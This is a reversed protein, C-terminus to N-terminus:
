DSKDPKVKIQTKLKAITEEDKIAQETRGEQKAIREFLRVLRQLVAKDEETNLLKNQTQKHMEKSRKHQETIEQIQKNLRAIQDLKPLIGKVGRIGSLELSTNIFENREVPDATTQAVKMLETSIAMRQTPMAEMPIPILKFRAQRLYNVEEKTLKLTSLNGEGDSMSYFTDPQIEALLLETISQGVNMSYQNVHKMSLLVREMASSQLQKVTSFIEIGAEPSGQLLSNIGTVYEIGNKMMDLMYPYFQGLQQVEDREPVLVTNEWQKPNYFRVKRPDNVNEWSPIDDKDIGGKPSKWGANNTLIGNLLLMAILKDYADQMGKGSHIVGYCMYPKGAWENFSWNLPFVTMPEMLVQVIYDGLILTRRVYLDPWTDIAGSLLTQQDPEMNEAFLRMILGNENKVLYMNTYIKDVYERILIKHPEYMGEVKTREEEAINDATKSFFEMTLNKNFKQNIEQIIPNYVEKARELPVEKETFYGEMTQINRSTCNIDLIVEAPHRHVLAVNFAGPAYRNPRITESLGQGRILIDKVTEETELIGLSNRLVEHKMADVRLALKDFIESGDVSQVKHSPNQSTLVALKHNTIPYLYNVTSHINTNDKINGYQKKNYLTRTGEVDGYYLQEDKKTDTIFKRQVTSWSNYRNRLAEPLLEFLIM